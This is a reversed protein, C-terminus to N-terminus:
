LLHLLDADAEHPDDHEERDVPDDGVQQRSAWRSHLWMLSCFIPFQRLLTGWSFPLKFLPEMLWPRMLTSRSTSSREMSSTKSCSRFRPFGPPAEWLSSTTSPRSTLSPTVCRRRWLILPERSSTLASSRLGQGQSQPTSTSARSCPTSRSARKLRPRSLERPERLATRLRRLARKNGTLDKKHKRKFENVFHDVM